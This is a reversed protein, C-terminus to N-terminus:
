SRADMSDMVLLSFGTNFSTGLGRLSATSAVTPVMASAPTTAPQPLELLELELEDLEDLEDDELLDLPLTPTRSGSVFDETRQSVTSRGSSLFANAAAPTSAIM